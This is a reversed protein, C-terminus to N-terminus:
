EREGKTREMVINSRGSNKSIKEMPIGLERHTKFISQCFFIIKIQQNHASCLSFAAIAIDITKKLCLKCFILIMIRINHYVILSTHFM